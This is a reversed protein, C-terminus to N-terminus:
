AIKGLKKLREYYGRTEIRALAGQKRRLDSDKRKFFRHARKVQMFGANRAKRSFRRILNISSESNNKEIYVNIAM